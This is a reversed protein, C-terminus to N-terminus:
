KYPSNFVKFEASLDRGDVGTEVAHLVDELHSKYIDDKQFIGIDNFSNM